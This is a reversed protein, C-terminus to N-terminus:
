ILFLRRYLSRKEITKDRRCAVTLTNWLESALIRDQIHWPIVLM